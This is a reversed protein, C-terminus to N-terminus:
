FADVNMQGGIHVHATAFCPVLAESLWGITLRLCVSSFSNIPLLTDFPLRLSLLAHAAGIEKSIPSMMIVQGFNCSVVSVLEARVSKAVNLRCQSLM